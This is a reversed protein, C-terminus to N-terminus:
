FGLFNRQSTDEGRIAETARNGREGAQGAAERTLRWADDSADKGSKLVQKIADDVQDNTAM